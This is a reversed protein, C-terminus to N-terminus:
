VAVSRQNILVIVSSHLCDLGEGTVFSNCPFAEIAKVRGHDHEYILARNGHSRTLADRFAGPAYGTSEMWNLVGSLFFDHLVVVGPFRRLLGFMHAHFDSNGFQYVIHDFSTAHQEFWHVSQVAYAEANSMSDPQQVLIATIDFHEVLVDLLEKCYDAIGSKSPPLPTVMALKPKACGVQLPMPRAEKRGKIQREHAQEIADLAVRATEKWSFKAAQTAAHQRLAAKFPEDTLVRGMLRAMDRSNKPDFLADANGIVEPISSSNSGIVTAGCKIAELVPLGFGEHLSPFVFLACSKYLGILEDDSVFGTFIVDSPSLRLSKCLKRLRVRSEAEIKCVLVLQHAAKTLAPLLSYGTLLGEINKRWDIGGTYMVFPKTVGLSVLVNKTEAAESTRNEGFTDDVASSINVIKEPQMGPLLDIAENASYASICLLLDARALSELKRFYYNKVRAENLYREPHRIPILDYFTVADIYAKPAGGISAVCDDNLGEFLSTTHVADPQIKRIIALRNIEAVRTLWTSEEVSESCGRPPYFTVIRAAEISASFQQKIATASQEFAGNLLLWYEHHPAQNVMAHALSMSYRGIGRNRSGPAQCSQLDLLIRM